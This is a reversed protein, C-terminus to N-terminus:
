ENNPLADASAPQAPATQAVGQVPALAPLDGQLVDRSSQLWQCMAAELENSPQLLQPWRRVCNQVCNEIQ